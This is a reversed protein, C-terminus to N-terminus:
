NIGVAAGMVREHWQSTLPVRVSSKNAATQECWNTIQSFYLENNPRAGLTDFLQWSPFFFFRLGDQELVGSTWSSLLRLPSQLYLCHRVGRSPWIWHKFWSSKFVFAIRCVKLYLHMFYWMWMKEQNNFFHSLIVALFCIWYYSAM